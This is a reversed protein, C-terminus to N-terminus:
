DVQQDLKALIRGGAEGGLLFGLLHQTQAEPMVSSM